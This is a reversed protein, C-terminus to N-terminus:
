RSTRYPRKSRVTRSGPGISGSVTEAVYRLPTRSILMFAGAPVCGVRTGTVVSHSGTGRSRDRCRWFYVNSADALRSLPSEACHSYEIREVLQQTKLMIQLAQEISRRGVDRESRGTCAHERGDINETVSLSVDHNAGLQRAHLRFVDLHGGLRPAQGDVALAFRTGGVVGRVVAALTGPPLERAGDVQRGVEVYLLGLGVEM